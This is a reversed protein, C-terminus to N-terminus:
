VCERWDFASCLLCHCLQATLASLQNALGLKAVASASNVKEKASQM